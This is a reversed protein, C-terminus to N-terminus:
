IKQAAAKAQADAAQMKKAATRLFEETDKLYKAKKQIDEQVGRMFRLYAKGADGSWAAELNQCIEDLKKVSQSQMDAALEDLLKAQQITQNYDFMIAMHIGM